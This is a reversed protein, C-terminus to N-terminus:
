RRRRIAANLNALRHLWGLDSAILGLGLAILPLSLLAIFLTSLANPHTVSNDLNSLPGAGLLNRTNLRLAHGFYSPSFYLPPPANLHANASTAAAAETAGTTADTQAHRNAHHKHRAQRVAKVPRRRQHDTAHVPAASPPISPTTSAPLGTTPPTGTPPTPNTPSPIAAITLASVISPTPAVGLGGTTPAGPTARAVTTTTGTSATTTPANTTTTSSSPVSTTTFTSTTSTTTTTAPRIPLSLAQNLARENGACQTTGAHVVGIDLTTDVLRATRNSPDSPSPPSLPTGGVTATSLHVAFPGVPCDLMQSEARHYTSSSKSWLLELSGDLTAAGTTTNVTGAFDSVAAAQVTLIGLTPSPTAVAVDVLTFTLRNSPLTYTGDPAVGVTIPVPTTFTAIDTTKTRMALSLSIRVPVRSGADADARSFCMPGVVVIVVAYYAILAVSWRRSGGGV